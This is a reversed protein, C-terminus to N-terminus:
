VFASPLPNYINDDPEINEISRLVHYFPLEIQLWSLPNM